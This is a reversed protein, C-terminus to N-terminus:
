RVLEEIFNVILELLSLNRKESPPDTLNVVEGIRYTDKLTKVNIYLQIPTLTFNLEITQNERVSIYKLQTLYGRKSATVTYNGIPLTLIYNGTSNTTNSYGNAIVTAGPIPNTGDTVIGKITGTAEIEKYTVVLKPAYEENNDVQTLYFGNGDSCNDAELIFGYNESPNNYWERVTDLIAANSLSVNGEKTIEKSILTPGFDGGPNTWAVGNYRNNWTVESEKWSKEVKHVNLTVNGNLSQIYLVLKADLIISNKPILSLNFKIIGRDRDPPSYLKGIRIWPYIGNNMDPHTEGLLADEVYDKGEIAIETGKDEIVVIEQSAINGAKDKPTITFIYRGDSPNNISLSIENRVSNDRIFDTFPIGDKTVTIETGEEDFDFNDEFIFRVKELSPVVSDNAPDSTVLSPSTTDLVISAAVPGSNVHGEADKVWIYVTKIGEDPSDFTYTTPRTTNWRPDSSDPPTNQTESLLWAVATDDNGIEVNVTSSQTYRTSGTIQDRLKLTPDPMPSDGPNNLVMVGDNTTAIVLKNNCRTVGHMQDPAHRFVDVIQPKTKNTINVKYVEEFQSAIYVYNGAPLIRSASTIGDNSGIIQPFEPDSMNLVYFGNFTVMYGYNSEFAMEGIDGVGLNYEKIFSLKKDAGVKYILLKDLGISSATTYFYDGYTWAGHLYSYGHYGTSNSNGTLLAEILTINDMDSLDFSRIYSEIGREPDRTSLLSTVFLIEHESNYAIEGLNMERNEFIRKPAYPNTVDYIYLPGWGTPWAFYIKGDKEFTVPVERCRGGVRESYIPEFPDTTVDFIRFWLDGVAYVFQNGLSDVQFTRGAELLIPKSRMNKFDYIGIGACGEGGSIYSFNGVATIDRMYQSGEFTLKGVFKPSNTENMASINYAGAGQSSKGVYVIPYAIKIFGWGFNYWGEGCKHLIVPNSLNSVDVVILSTNKWEEGSSYIPKNTIFLYHSWLDIDTPAADSFNIESIIFPSSPNSINGILIKYNYNDLIFATRNKIIVKNFRIDPLDWISVKVPNSKNSINLIVLGNQCTSIYAHNNEVYVNGYECWSYNNYHGIIVPNKRDSINFIWLGTNSNLYLYDGGIFLRTGWSDVDVPVDKVPVPNYRDTIDYVRLMAGYVLYLYNGEKDIGIGETWGYRWWKDLTM